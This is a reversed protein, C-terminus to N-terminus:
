IIRNELRSGHVIREITFYQYSDTTNDYKMFLLYQEPYTFSGLPINDMPFIGNILESIREHWIM